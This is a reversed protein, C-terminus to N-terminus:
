LTIKTDSPLENISKWELGEIKEPEKISPNGNVIETSYILDIWHHGDKEWFYERFGILCKIDIEVGIEEMVERKLSERPLEGVEVKGGPLGWKGIKKSNIMLVKNESNKILANVIFGTYNM